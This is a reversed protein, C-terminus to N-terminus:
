TAGRVTLLMDDGFRRRREVARSAVSASENERVAQISAISKEPISKEPTSKEPRKSRGAGAGDVSVM